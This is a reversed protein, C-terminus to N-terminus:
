EIKCPKNELVVKKKIQHLSSDIDVDLYITSLVEKSKTIEKLYNIQSEKLEISCYIEKSDKQKIEEKPIVISSKTLPQYGKDHKLWISSIFGSLNIDLYQSKNIAKLYISASPIQSTLCFSIPNTSRVDIEIDKEFSEKSYIKEKIIPLVAGVIKFTITKLVGLFITEGKM